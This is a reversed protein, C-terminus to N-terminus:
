RVRRRLLLGVTRAGLLLYRVPGRWRTKLVVLELDLGACLEQTRRQDTWTLALISVCRLHHCAAGSGPARGPWEAGAVAPVDAALVVTQQAQARRHPTRAQAARGGEPQLHRRRGRGAPVADGADPDAAAWAALAGHAGRLGAQSPQHRAGAALTGRGAQSSAEAQPRSDESE